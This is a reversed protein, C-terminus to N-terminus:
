TLRELPVLLDPNRELLGASSLDLGHLRDAYQEEHPSHWRGEQWWLWDKSSLDRWPSMADIFYHTAGEPAQSRDPLSM